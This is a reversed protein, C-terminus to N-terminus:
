PKIKHFLRQACLVDGCEVFMPVLYNGYLRHTELGYNAIHIYLKQAYTKRKANRFNHTIDILDDFSPPESTNELWSLTDKLTVSDLSARQSGHFAHGIINGDAKIESIGHRFNYQLPFTSIGEM